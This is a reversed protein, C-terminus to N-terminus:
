YSAANQQLKRVIEPKAGNRVIRKQTGIIKDTFPLSLSPCTPM